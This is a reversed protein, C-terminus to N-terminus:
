PSSNKMLQKNLKKACGESVFLIKSNKIALYIQKNIKNLLITMLFHIQDSYLPIFNKEKMTSHTKANHKFM